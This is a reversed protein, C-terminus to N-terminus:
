ILRTMTSDQAVQGELAQRTALGVEELLLGKRVQDCLLRSLLLSASALSFSASPCFSLGVPLFHTLVDHGRM